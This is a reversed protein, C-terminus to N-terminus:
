FGIKRSPLDHSTSCAVDSIAAITTALLKVSVIVLVDIRVICIERMTEGVTPVKTEGWSAM